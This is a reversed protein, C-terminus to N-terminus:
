GIDYRRTLTVRDPEGNKNRIVTGREIKLDDMLMCFAARTTPEMERAKITQEIICETGQAKPARYLVLSGVLDGGIWEDVLEHVEADTKM